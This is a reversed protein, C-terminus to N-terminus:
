NDNHPLHHKLGRQRSFARDRNWSIIFYDLFYFIGHLKERIAKDPDIYEGVGRALLEDIDVTSKM